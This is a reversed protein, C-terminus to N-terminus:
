NTDAIVDGLATDLRRQSRLSKVEELESAIRPFSYVVKAEESVNVDGNLDLVLDKFMNEVIKPSLKEESTASNVVNVVQELTQPKGGAMFIAKFLRKRINNLHRKHRSMSIKIWRVLPITFFIVSFIFPIVGLLLQGHEGLGALVMGLVEGTSNFAEQQMDYYGPTSSANTMFIFSFLLNFGNMATIALNQGSTNGNLIQEPEYEDWYHVVSGGEMKGLGRLVQDFEAYVVGNETVDVNGQFRVLCDTLFAQAEDLKWGALANLESTVLVGKQQKLYAAVEKQNSLPDTSVKPPGFVFDYVAAIFNKKKENIVSPKPRYQPYQYGWRDKRYTIDPIITRWRFINIFIHIVTDLKIISRRKGDKSSSSAIIIAILIILFIVFYVVLTITIWAKFIITFVKWLWDLVSQAIEKATKQGRRFLHPGFNYILDANETVQLRCVYKNLLENLADKTEDISIGTVAAAETLTFNLQGKHLRRELIKITEEPKM